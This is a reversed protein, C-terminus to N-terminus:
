ITLNLSFAFIIQCACRTIHVQALLMCFLLENEDLDMPNALNYGIPNGNVISDYPMNCAVPYKIMLGLLPLM